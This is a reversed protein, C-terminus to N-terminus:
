ITKAVEVFLDRVWQRAPDGHTREHWIASMTFGELKLEPPPALIALGLPKALLTAVRSALTLILDTDAVVHPAVLFHPVMVAVRRRLGLRALADDVFGGEKGRPAILAHSAAAFRAVTLKKDALPHGKRVVCVFRESFLRRALLGPREHEGRLPTVAFDYTGQALSTGADEYNVVHLDIGPAERQLRALVKPLLVIEGYDSTGVVVRATATKPDFVAPGALARRVEDLARRIPLILAEARTTPLMAGTGRVLLEDDFVLRLRALAHSMASQTIGTRTAARTVNREELLADLAVLLNLDVSGLHVDSMLDIYVISQACSTPLRMKPPTVAIFAAGLVL